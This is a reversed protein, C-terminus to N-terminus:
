YELIYQNRHVACLIPATGKQRRVISVLTDDHGVEVGHEYRNLFSFGSCIPTALPQDSTSVLQVDPTWQPHEPIFSLYPSGINKDLSRHNGDQLRPTMNPYYEPPLIKFLLHAHNLLGM